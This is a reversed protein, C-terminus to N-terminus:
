DIAAQLRKELTDCIIANISMRKQEALMAIGCRVDSPIRINMTGSYSKKPKIGKEVCYDLYDDIAGKFDEYLESATNGEYTICTGKDIGVVKGHICNDTKNYEIFRSVSAAM